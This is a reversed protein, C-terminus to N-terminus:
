NCYNGDPLSPLLDGYGWIITGIVAILPLAFLPSWISFKEVKGGSLQGSAPPHWDVWAFFLASVLVITAGGRQFNISCNSEIAWYYHLLLIIITLLYGIRPSIYNAAKRKMWPHTDNAHWQALIKLADLFKLDEDYRIKHTM